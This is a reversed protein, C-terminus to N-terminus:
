PVGFLSQFSNGNVGELGSQRSQGAYQDHRREQLRTVGFRAVALAAAAPLVGAAPAAAPLAIHFSFAAAHM